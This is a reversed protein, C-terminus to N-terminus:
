CVYMFSATAITRKCVPIAATKVIPKCTCQNHIRQNMSNLLLVVFRFVAFFRNVLHSQKITKAVNNAM